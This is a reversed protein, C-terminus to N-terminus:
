SACLWCRFCGFGRRYISPLDVTSRRHRGNKARQRDSTFGGSLLPINPFRLTQSDLSRPIQSDSFRLIQSNPFRPIQSNPFRIIQSNTFTPMRSNPFTPVLIQSDPFMWCLAVSLLCVLRLQLRPLVHSIAVRLFCWFAPLLVCCSSCSLQM